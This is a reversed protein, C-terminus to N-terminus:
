SLIGPLQNSGESQTIFAHKPGNAILAPEALVTVCTLRAPWPGAGRRELKKDVPPVPAQNMASSHKIGQPIM